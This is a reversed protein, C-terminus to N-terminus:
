ARRFDAAQAQPPMNRRGQPGDFLEDADRRRLAMDALHEDSLHRLKHAQRYAADAAAIRNLLTFLTQAIIRTM